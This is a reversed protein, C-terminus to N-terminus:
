PKLVLVDKGDFYKKSIQAATGDKVMEKLTSQVEDRLKTNGLKFGIGYNETIVVEDLVRFKDNGKTKEEAVGIDMAVADVSGAELEM